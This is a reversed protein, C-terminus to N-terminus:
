VGPLLFRVPGPSGYCWHWPEYLYGHRNNPPYSLRYGFKVAHQSLWHFAATNEFEQELPRSGDATLDVARGTHHESFGPPANAELIRELLEGRDLKRRVIEVQRDVSRFASVILLGVGASAAAKKMAIWAEAAAPTLLHERRREDVEATILDTAEDFLELSRASAIDLPIGLSELISRIRGPMELTNEVAM